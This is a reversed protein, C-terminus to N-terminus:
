ATGEGGVEHPEVHVLVDAVSPNQARVAEKVRHALLHGERVSLTPDVEIHMDALYSTGTKRAMVKEIARVGDVSRAANAMEALIAPPPQIDMLEAASVRIFKIGNFAILASAAIAAWEDAAEYGEGGYVSIAIGVAAAASTLADSRHHVADVRIATSNLRYGVRSALRYMVEKVIVVVALVILTFPAPTQHPTRIGHVASVCIGVAAGTLMLGVSLAALSEAKGHGYPHNDDPPRASVALGGFVIASSAIDAFSEVADAVLAYSHGILGAVLKVAALVASSAMGLLTVRLGPSM